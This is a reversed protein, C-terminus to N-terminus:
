EASALHLIPHVTHIPHRHAGKRSIGVQQVLTNNVICITLKYAHRTGDVDFLKVFAEDSVPKLNTAPNALILSSIVATKGMGVEDCLWGGRAPYTANKDAMRWEAQMNRGYGYRGHKQEKVLQGRQGELAADTSREVDIMFALSQRQYQM